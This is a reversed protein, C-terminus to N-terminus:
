CLSLRLATRRTGAKEIIFQCSWITICCAEFGARVEFLSSIFIVTLDDLSHLAHNVPLIGTVVRKLSMEKSVIVAPIRNWILRRLPAVTMEFVITLHNM